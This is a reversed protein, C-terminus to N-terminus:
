SAITRNKDHRKRRDGQAEELKADLKRLNALSCSLDDACQAQDYDLWNGIAM